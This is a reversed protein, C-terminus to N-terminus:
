GTIFDYVPSFCNFKWWIYAEKYQKISSGNTAFIFFIITLTTMGIVVTLYNCFTIEDLSIPQNWYKFYKVLSYVSYPIGFLTYLICYLAMRTIAESPIKNSSQSTSPLDSPLSESVPSTPSTSRVVTDSSIERSRSTMTPNTESQSFSERHKRRAKIAM